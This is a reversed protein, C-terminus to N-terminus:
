RVVDHPQADQREVHSVTVPWQPRLMPGGFMPPLMEVTQVAVDARVILHEKRRHASEDRTVRPPRARVTRRIKGPFIYGFTVTVFLHRILHQAGGRESPLSGTDAMFRRENVDDGPCELTPKM